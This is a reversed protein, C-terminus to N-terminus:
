ERLKSQYFAALAHAAPRLVWVGRAKSFLHTYGGSTESGAGVWYNAGVLYSLPALAALEAQLVAQQTTDDVNVQNSYGLEGIVIPMHRISEITQLESLRAHAAGAPDITYGEPYSDVTIYGFTSVTAQELVDPHAAFFSNTSRIGTIVGQVGLQHFAADAIASTDRLFANYQRTAANPAQSTWGSGYMIKWYHGEEPESCADFIDGPQFFSPHALIFSREATEYQAPTMVGAAGNNNEWQNPHARFWVHRGTARIAQIWEQLYAPYEWHTDVTIYNTNLSASLNVISTIERLSLPHRETDRSEKMTDVSAFFTPSSPLVSSSLSPTLRALRLVAFLGGAALLLLALVVGARKLISRGKMEQM